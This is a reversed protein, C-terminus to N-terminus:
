LARTSEEIRGLRKLLADCEEANPGQALALDVEVVDRYQGLIRSRVRWRYVPPILRVLPVLVLLPLVLVKIRDVLTAAWFPLYRALLPPGSRHYRQADEMLPFELFNASPFQKPAEFMGPAGHISAATVLVLRVLAPHSNRPLVPTPPSHLPSPQS